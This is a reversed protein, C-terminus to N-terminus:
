FNLALLPLFPSLDVAGVEPLDDRACVMERLAATERALTWREFAEGQDFWRLARQVAPRVIPLPLAGLAIADGRPTITMPGTSTWITTPIGTQATFVRDPAVARLAYGVTRGGLWWPEGDVAVLRVLQDAYSSYFTEVARAKPPAAVLSSQIRTRRVVDAILERATPRAIQARALEALYASMEDRARAAPRRERGADDAPGVYGALAGPM